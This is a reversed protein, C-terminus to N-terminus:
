KLPKPSGGVPRHTGSIYARDQQRQEGLPSVLRDARRRPPRRIDAVIMRRILIRQGQRWFVGLYPQQDLGLASGAVELARAFRTQAEIISERLTAGVEPTELLDAVNQQGVHPMRTERKPM